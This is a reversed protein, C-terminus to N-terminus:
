MWIEEVESGQKDVDLCVWMCGGDDVKAGMNMWM